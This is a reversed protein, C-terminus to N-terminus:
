ASHVIPTNFKAFEGFLEFAKFNYATAADAEDKFLGLEYKVRDRNIKARWRNCDGARSVGRFPSATGPTKRANATNQSQDAPRINIRQNNLGNNDAHDIGTVISLLFVHM